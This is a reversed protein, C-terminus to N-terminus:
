WPKTSSTRVMSAKREFVALSFCAHGVIRGSTGIFQSFFHVLPQSDQQHFVVTRVGNQELLHQRLNGWPLELDGPGSGQPFGQFAEAALGELGDEQVEGQGVRVAQLRNRPEGCGHGRHGNEHGGAQRVLVDGALGDTAARLIVQHFPLRVRPRQDPRDAIGDVALLALLRQSRGPVGGLLGLGGGLVGVTGLVMEQRDELWSSRVGSVGTM